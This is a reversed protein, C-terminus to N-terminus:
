EIVQRRASYKCMDACWKVFAGDSKGDTFNDRFYARLKEFAELDRRDQEKREDETM